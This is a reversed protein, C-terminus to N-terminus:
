YLPGLRSWDRAKHYTMTPPSLSSYRASTRAANFVCVCSGNALGRVARAARARARGVRARQEEHGPLIGLVVGGLKAQAEPEIWRARMRARRVCAIAHACSSGCRRNARTRAAWIRQSAANLDEISGYYRVDRSYVLRTHFLLREDTGNM